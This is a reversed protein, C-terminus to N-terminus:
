DKQKVTLTIARDSGMHEKFQDYDTETPLELTTNLLDKVADKTITYTLAPGTGCAQEDTTVVIVPTDSGIPWKFDDIATLYFEMEIGSNRVDEPANANPAFTVSIDEGEVLIEATHNPGTQDSDDLRITMTGSLTIEGLDDVQKEALQVAITGTQQDVNTQYYWTAYVGGVVVILALTLIWAFYRKKM